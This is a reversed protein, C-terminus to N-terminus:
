IIDFGLTSAWLFLSTIFYLIIYLSHRRFVVGKLKKSTGKMNLRCVVLLSTVVTSLSSIFGLLMYKIRQALPLEFINIAKEDYWFDNILSILSFASILVIIFFYKWKRNERPYFPNKL